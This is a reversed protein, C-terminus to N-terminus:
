RKLINGEFSGQTDGTLVNIVRRLTFRGTAGSFRGTGGTITHTEVILSIGNETPVTGQGELDTFLSDGNAAVLEASGVGFFNDLNVEAEYTVAYRGLHTAQGWGNGSVILTPFLVEPPLLVYSEEVANFSGKLPVANKATASATLTAALVIAAIGLCLMNTVRDKM